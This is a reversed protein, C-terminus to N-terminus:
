WYWWMAIWAKILESCLSIKFFDKYKTIVNSNKDILFPPDKQQKNSAHQCSALVKTWSASFMMTMAL